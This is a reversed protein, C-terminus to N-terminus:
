NNKFNKAKRKSSRLSKNSMNQKKVKNTIRPKSNNKFLMRQIRDIIQIMMMMNLTTNKM